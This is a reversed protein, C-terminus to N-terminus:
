SAAITKALQDNVEGLEAIMKEIIAIDRSSAVVKGDKARELVNNAIAAVTGIISVVSGGIGLEEAVPALKSVSTLGEQLAAVVKTMDM